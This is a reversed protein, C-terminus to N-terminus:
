NLQKSSTARVHCVEVDAGLLLLDHIWVKQKAFLRDGPGKVEVVKARLLEPNWMVLDPIGSRAYGPNMAIKRMVGALVKSGICEALEILEDCSSFLEWAVYGCRTDHNAAWVSRLMKPCDTWEEIKCLRSDVAAQRSPYFDKTQFDLPLSQFANRFVNPIGAMFVIDWMLLCFMTFFASAEVHMGKTFGNEKYYDLALEEVSCLLMDHNEGMRKIFRITQSSKGPLLQGTITVEKPTQLKQHQGNQSPVMLQVKGKKLKKLRECLALHYSPLISNDDLGTTIISIAKGPNKLHQEYNLALREYWYGRKSTSIDELLLDELVSCAQKYNKLRQLIEFMFNKIRIYVSVPTHHQAYRPLNKFRTIFRKNLKQYSEESKKCISLATKYDSSEAALRATEFIDCAEEYALLEGRDVFLPKTISVEYTPYTFKKMRVMLMKSLQSSGSSILKNIEGTDSRQSVTSDYQIGMVVDYVLLIRNVVKKAKDAIRYCPGLLNNIKGKIKVELRNGNSFFSSQSKNKCLNRVFKVIEAKTSCNLNMYKSLIKAKNLPLISLLEDLSIKAESEDVKKLSSDLFHKDVLENLQLTLDDSIHPYSIKDLTLWAHKRQYLRVYLEQCTTDLKQFKLVWAVDEGDFLRWDYHNNMVTELAFKFNTLYISQENESEYTKENVSDEVFNEKEVGKENSVHEVLQKKEASKKIKEKSAKSNDAPKTYRKFSGARRPRVHSYQEPKKFVEDNENPLTISFKELDNRDLTLESHASLSEKQEVSFKLNVADVDTKSEVSLSQSKKRSDSMGQVQQTSLNDNKDPQAEFSKDLHIKKQLPEIVTAVPKTVVSLKDNESDHRYRKPVTLSRKRGPRSSYDVLSKAPAADKVQAAKSSIESSGSQKVPEVIFVDPLPSTDLPKLKKVSTVVEPRKLIKYPKKKVITISIRSSTESSSKAVSNSSQENAQNSKEPLEEVDKQLLTEGVISEFNEVNKETVETISVSKGAAKDRLSFTKKPALPSMSSENDEDDSTLDIITIQDRIQIDRRKYNTRKCSSGPEDLCQSPRKIGGGTKGGRKKPIHDRKFKQKTEMLDQINSM